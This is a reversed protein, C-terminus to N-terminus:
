LIKLNKIGNLQANRTEAWSYERMYEGCYSNIVEADGNLFRYLDCEVQKTELYKKRGESQVIYAISREKLADVLRKFTVRCLALTNEDNMRGPWLADIIEGATAGADGQDVLFAFLEEVKARGLTFREGDVWVVFDPITQIKVRKKSLPHFSAAKRIEKQIEQRMYPKLVYGIADVGFAQLAYQEYATVFVVRITTNIKKMKKALELGHMQRMEMDLFAVDVPNNKVWDLAEEAEQFLHLSKIEPFNKVTMCFNDLAPKEDDVYIVNM